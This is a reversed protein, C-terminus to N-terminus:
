RNSTTINKNNLAVNEQTEATIGILLGQDPHYWHYTGLILSDDPPQGARCQDGPHSSWRKAEPLLDVLVHPHSVISLWM